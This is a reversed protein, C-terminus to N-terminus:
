HVNSSPFQPSLIPNEGYFTSAEFAYWVTGTVFDSVFSFKWLGRFFPSIDLKSQSEPGTALSLTIHTLNNGVTRAVQTETHM